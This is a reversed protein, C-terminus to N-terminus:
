KLAIRRSTRSPPPTTSWSPMGPRPIAGAENEVTLTVTYNGFTLYAYVPNPEVSFNGDGFSWNYALNNGKSLDTFQVPIHENTETTNTTFNATPPQYYTFLTDMDSRYSVDM